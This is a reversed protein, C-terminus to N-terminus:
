RWIRYNSYSKGKCCFEMNIFSSNPYKNGNRKPFRSTAVLVASPSGCVSTWPFLLHGPDGAGKRNATAERPLCPSDVRDLIFVGDMIGLSDNTKRQLAQLYSHALPQSWIPGAVVMGPLAGAARCESSALFAKWVSSKSCFDVQAGRGAAARGAPGSGWRGQAGRGGGM